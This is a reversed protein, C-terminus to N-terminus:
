GQKQVTKWVTAETTIIYKRQLIGGKFYLETICGNKVTGKANYSDVTATLVGDKYVGASEILEMAEFFGEATEVAFSGLTVKMGKYDLTYGGSGDSIASLGEVASPATFIIRNQMEGIIATFSVGTGEETVNYTGQKNFVFDKGGCSSFSLMLAGMLALIIFRKLYIM